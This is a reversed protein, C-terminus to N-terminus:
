PLPTADLEAESLVPGDAPLLTRSGIPAMWSTRIGERHRSVSGTVHYRLVYDCVYEWGAVKQQCTVGEIGPTRKLQAVVEEQTAAPFLGIGYLFEMIRAPGILLFALFCALVFARGWNSRNIYM